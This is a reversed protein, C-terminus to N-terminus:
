RIHARSVASWGRDLGIALVYPEAEKSMFQPIQQVRRQDCEFDDLRAVHANPAARSRNEM